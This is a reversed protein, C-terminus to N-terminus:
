RVKRYLDGNFRYGQYVGNVVVLQFETWANKTGHYPNDPGTVLRRNGWDPTLRWSVGADNVWRLSRGVRRIEGKHWANQVGNARKYTGVIAATSLVGASSGCVTDRWTNEGQGTYCIASQEFVSSKSLPGTPGDALECASDSVFDDGCYNKGNGWRYVNTPELWAPWRSGYLGQKLDVDFTELNEWTSWDRGRDTDDYLSVWFTDVYQHSGVTSYLGHSGLAAYVVPHTGYAKQINRWQITEGHDHQSLIVSKPQLMTDLRVTMTEWDSVHNGYVTGFQKKGYNFPYYHFYILDVYGGVTKEQWFAYSATQSRLTMVEGYLYRPFGDDLDDKTYMWVQGDRTVPEMWSL